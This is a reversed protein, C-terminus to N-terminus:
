VELPRMVALIHLVPHLVGGGGIMLESLISTELTSKFRGPKQGVFGIVNETNGTDCLTSTPTDLNPPLPLRPFGWRRAEDTLPSM